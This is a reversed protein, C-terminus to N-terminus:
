NKNQQRNNQSRKAPAKKKKGGSGPRADKESKWWDPGEELVAADQAILQERLEAFKEPYQSSLDSSEQWDERINYLEFQTLDDSGIIKWDGVRM